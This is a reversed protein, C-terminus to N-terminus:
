GNTISLVVSPRCCSVDCKRRLCWWVLVRALLLPDTNDFTWLLLPLLFKITREELSGCYSPLSWFCDRHTKIMILSYCSLCCLMLELEDVVVVLVVSMWRQVEESESVVQVANEEVIQWALDSDWGGGGKDEHSNIGFFVHIQADLFGGQFSLIPHDKGWIISKIQLGQAHKEDATSIQHASWLILGCCIAESLFPTYFHGPIYIM